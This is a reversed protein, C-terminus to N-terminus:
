APHFGWPQGWSLTFGGPCPSAGLVPHLGWPQGWFLTFGGPCASAGLSHTLVGLSSSTANGARQRHSQSSRWARATHSVLLVLAMSLAPVAVGAGGEGRSHSPIPHFPTSHWSGNATLWCLGGSGGWSESGVAPGWGWRNGILCPSISHQFPEPWLLPSSQLPAILKEMWAAMQDGNAGLVVYFMIVVVNPALM